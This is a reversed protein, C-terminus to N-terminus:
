SWSPDSEQVDVLRTPDDWLLAIHRGLLSANADTLATRRLQLIATPLQEGKLVATFIARVVERREGTFDGRRDWVAVGVGAAIAARLAESATGGRPADLVAATYGSTAALTAQWRDLRHLDSSQWEHTTIGHTELARWRQRWASRVMVDDTRMRELSRLHVSYTLGLPMPTGEGVRCTLGAVDHNLLDHPLVFEIYPQPPAGAGSPAADASPALLAMQRLGREVVHGLADLTTTTTEHPVPDWRQATTNLWTRVTIAHDDDAHEVVVVLCLPVPPGNFVGARALDERRRHLEALLGAGLAWSQTWGRLADRSAASRVSSAACEMLLVAPPLGDPASNLELAHDFLQEISLGPPLLLGNLATSLSDRLGTASLSGGLGRLLARASRTEESSLPGPLLTEFDDPPSSGRGTGGAAPRAAAHFEAGALLTRLTSAAEEGELVEVVRLLVREGDAVSLAARVLTVADERLRVGRLAVPRGLQEELVRAFLMRQPPDELSGLACLAETLRSLLELGEAPGSRHTAEADHRGAEGAVADRAPELIHRFTAVARAFPRLETPLETTAAPDHLVAAIGHPAYPHTAVHRSFARLTQWVDHTTLRARLYDRAPSRLVLVPDGGAERRVTFLGCTLLEALDSYRAEPVVQDRLVHLLPLSLEPLGSGLVALRVAPAPATSVFAEALRAPDAPPASVTGPGPRPLRGTAPVLVADCGRPDARMLTSAWAGFSRPTCSLVPLASWFEPGEGPRRRLRSPLRFRLGDNDDGTQGCTVRVAPLNLASHRWLRPPLPDLLAVPIRGGWARLLLWPAPTHWGPAACDSILLVLRRGRSGSGHHPVRDGPVPRRRHDRVLPEAGQWELRWTDVFRFGGLDRLLGSVARATEQWVSMSLSTDVVVVAEFWPEPAPKFLPVLPGGRAHHDVTADIDLRSLGGHRWPRRFPQFARSVGLADPLPGARGLPVPTGRVTTGAGPRHLYVERVPAPSRGTREGSPAPADPSGQAGPEAGPEEGAAEGSATAPGSPTNEGTRGSAALWLADAVTRADAGPPLAASLARLLRALADPM